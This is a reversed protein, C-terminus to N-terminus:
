NGKDTDSYATAVTDYAGTALLLYLTFLWGNSEVFQKIVGTNMILSGSIDDALLSSEHAYASRIKVIRNVLADYNAVEESPAFQMMVSVREHLSLVFKRIILGNNVTLTINEIMAQTFFLYLGVKNLEEMWRIIVLFEEETHQNLELFLARMLVMHQYEAPKAMAEQVIEQKFM